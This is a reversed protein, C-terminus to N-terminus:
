DSRGKRPPPLELSRKRKWLEVGKKQKNYVKKNSKAISFFLAMNKYPMIKQIKRKRLFNNKKIQIRSKMQLKPM